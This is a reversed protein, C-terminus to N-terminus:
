WSALDEDIGLAKCRLTVFAGYSYGSASGAESEITVLSKAEGYFTVVSTDCRSDDGDDMVVNTIIPNRFDNESYLLNTTFDAYGCCGGGDSIIELTHIEDGLKVEISDDSVTLIQAGILKELM